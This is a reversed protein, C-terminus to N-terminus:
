KFLESIEPPTQFQSVLHFRPINAPQEIVQRIKRSLEALNFPKQIFGACGRMRMEAAQVGESYGSCLLVKVDPDIKKLSNFTEAGGMEPMVMDLIIAAIDNGNAQYLAVAQKGNGAALVNYGLVSLMSRGVDLISDEDDVLLITEKGKLVSEDSCSDKEMELDSAPLFIIFTTGVGAQSEVDIIGNHNKIIGYVMALGLGTGRGMERTTFFPEFIRQRITEDMGIGTDALM